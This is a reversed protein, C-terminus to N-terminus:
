YCDKPLELGKTQLTLHIEDGKLRAHLIIEFEHGGNASADPLDYWNCSLREGEWCVRDKSFTIYPATESHALRASFNVENDWRMVKFQPYFNAQKTDGVECQVKDRPDSKACMCLSNNQTTYKAAIEDSLNPLIVM